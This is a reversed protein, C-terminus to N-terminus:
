LPDVQQIRERPSPLSRDEGLGFGGEWAGSERWHKVQRRSRKLVKKNFKTTIPIDGAPFCLLFFALFIPPPLLCSPLFSSLCCSPMPELSQPHVHSTLNTIDLLLPTLLLLSLFITVVVITTLIVSMLIAYNLFLIVMVLLGYDDGDYSDGDVNNQPKYSIARMTMYARTTNSAHTILIPITMNAKMAKTKSNQTYEPEQEEQQWAGFVIIIVM